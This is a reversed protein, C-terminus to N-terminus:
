LGDFRMGLTDSVVHGIEEAQELNPGRYLIEEDFGGTGSVLTEFRPRFIALYLWFVAPVIVNCLVEQFLRFLGPFFAGATWAAFYLLESREVSRAPNLRVRDFRGLSLKKERRPIFCIRWKKTLKAQGRTDRRLVTSVFTGLLFLLMISGFLAFALGILPENGNWLGIALSLLVVTQSVVYVRMRWAWSWGSPWEYYLPDYNKATKKKTRQNFGCFICLVATCPIEKGCKPCLRGPIGSLSYPDSNDEAADTLIKEAANSSTAPPPPEARDRHETVLLPLPPDSTPGPPTNVQQSLRATKPRAQMECMVGCGPCQVKNRPYAATIKFNCGCGECLVTLDVNDGCM